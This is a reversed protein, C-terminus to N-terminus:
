NNLLWDIDEKLLQHAQENIHKNRQAELENLFAKALMNNKNNKNKIVARIKQILSEKIGKENIWGLAFAREIDSLISEITAIIRFNVTSSTANGIMDSANAIINHKGLAEFFLDVSDGSHVIRDDFKIESSAVGSETDQISVNIPLTESRLYDKSQPSFVTIDPPIIDKPKVDLSQPNTSDVSLDLESVLGPKTQATFDKEVSVSDSVYGIAVTYEGTGTGQVEIKYQGDLPNPITIYEDDTVFGSYFAGDIQNVEENTQFDKGIRKGDPATVIVDVPSLIKILLLKFNIDFISDTNSTILTTADQGTLKKFVLGEAKTPLQSHESNLKNLDDAIFEGSNSTVTGDGVGRELGRDGVKEYFGDAYGHEWLPQSSSTIVRIADITSAYGLEGVINTIRISSNLLTIISNKLNELFTNRPYNNPYTRLDGSSKDRLYDYIPLLEEVSPIPKNRVYNFLNGFGAKQAEKSLIFKMARDERTIDTEGGEWMLYSKPSGLHPTGLFIMQDVDQEYVDSQIYQRAILGGMSHAVLDVKACQCITQVANIKDRLQLATVVNSQHWDYAFTFLDKGDVYGNVQLTAILDDYTHFIPDIIWTGNKQSSGLIGPIIIVPDRPAQQKTPDYGLWPVFNVNDSVPNGRGQANLLSHYPGTADGWWNNMAQLPTGLSNNVIGYKPNDHISSDSITLNGSDQLIGFFNLYSGNHDIESHSIGITGGKNYIGAYSGTQSTERFGGAYRVTTYNLNGTSGANFQLHAWDGHIPVTTSGNGNTDGGAADDNLSTLFVPNAKTGNINLAGNVILSSNLNEFKIVIGSDITLTKGADITLSSILYPLDNNWQKDNGIRGSIVFARRGTGSATNGSHTFNVLGNISGAGSSNHAFTNNTLTLSGSSSTTVGYSNNHFNSNSIAAIGGPNLFLGNTQHDIESSTIAISGNYQIIGALNNYSFQSDSVTVAGGNNYLGSQSAACGWNTCARDGGYRVVAHTITAASGANFRIDAWDKPLPRTATGDRNTDGGVSDDKYSTFYVKDTATGNVALTGNVYLQTLNTRFKIVVGPDITLTVGQNVFVTSQVVYPSQAQTWTTNHAIAGSIITSAFVSSPLCSIFFTAFTAIITLPSPHNNSKPM